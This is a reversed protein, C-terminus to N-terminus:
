KLNKIKDSWDNLAQNHGIKMDLLMSQTIARGYIRISLEKEESSFIEDEDEILKPKCDMVERIAEARAEREVTALATTLWSQLRPKFTVPYNKSKEFKKEFEAIIEEVRSSDPMNIDEAKPHFHDRIKIGCAETLGCENCRKVETPKLDPRGLADYLNDKSFDLGKNDVLSTTFTGEVKPECEKCFFSKHTHRSSCDKKCSMKKCSCQKNKEVKPEPCTCIHEECLGMNERINYRCDKDPCKKKNCEPQHKM